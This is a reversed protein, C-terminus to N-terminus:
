MDFPTLVKCDDSWAYFRRRVREVDAVTVQEGPARPIAYENEKWLFDDYENLSMNNIGQMVDRSLVPSGAKDEPCTMQDRPTECIHFM